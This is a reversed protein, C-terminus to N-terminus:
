LNTAAVTSPTHPPFLPVTIIITPSSSVISIMFVHYHDNIVTVVYEYM